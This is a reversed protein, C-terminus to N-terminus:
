QHSYWGEHSTPHKKASDPFVTNNDLFEQYERQDEEIWDPAQQIEETRQIDDSVLIRICQKDHRTNAIKAWGPRGIFRNNIWTIHSAVEDQMATADAPTIEIKNIAIQCKRIGQHLAKRLIVGAGSGSENQDRIAQDLDKLARSVFYSIRNKITNVKNHRDWIASKEVWGRAGRHPPFIISLM